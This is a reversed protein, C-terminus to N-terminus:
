EQGEEYIKRESAEAQRCSIIRIIVENNVISNETHIVLLVRNSLSMGISIFRHEEDSHVSDFFTALLEDQFVTKGEEFSVKHNKLNSKAKNKDWEFILEM